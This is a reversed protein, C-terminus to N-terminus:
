HQIKSGSPLYAWIAVGFCHRTGQLVNEGHNTLCICIQLRHRSGKPSFNIVSWFDTLHLDLYLSFVFPAAKMIDVFAGFWISFLVPVLSKLFFSVFDLCFLSTTGNKSLVVEGLVMVVSRYRKWSSWCYVHGIFDSVDSVSSIGKTLTAFISSPLIVPAISSWMDHLFKSYRPNRSGSILRFRDVM